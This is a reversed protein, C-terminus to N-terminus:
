VEDHHHGGEAVAFKGIIRQQEPLRQASFAGLPKRVQLERDQCQAVAAVFEEAIRPQQQVLAQLLKARTPEGFTDIDVPRVQLGRLFPGGIQHLQQGGARNPRRFGGGDGFRCCGGLPFAVFGHLCAKNNVSQERRDFGVLLHAVILHVERPGSDGIFGAIGDGHVRGVVGCQDLRDKGLQAHRGRM